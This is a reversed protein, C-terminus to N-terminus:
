SQMIPFSSTCYTLQLTVTVTYKIPNKTILSIGACHTSTITPFQTVTIEDTTYEPYACQPAQGKTVTFIRVGWFLDIMNYHIIVQQFITEWDQSRTVNWQCICSTLYLLLTCSLSM